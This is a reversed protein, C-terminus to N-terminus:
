YARPELTVRLVGVPREASIQVRREISVYGDKTLRVRKEGIPLYKITVPTRGWGVGNVTVQAGEPDSEV